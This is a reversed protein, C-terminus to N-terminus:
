DIPAEWTLRWTEPGVVGDVELGKEEQFARCVEESRPGYAGDVTIRWGREAMRAQWRRVDDGTMVPPQTIYRGPWPPASAPPTSPEPAPKSPAPQPPEQGLKRALAVASQPGYRGTVESVIDPHDAQLQRVAAETEDGFQGDVGYRPLKYGAKLLASQLDRVRDGEDGRSLVPEGAPVKGNWKYDDAGYAPRGYGAIVAASRIRRRVADGTNGEITQVRGDGLVKEIIGVHDIAGITNSEGWDFFVIDGPKARNLNAVTGSHWRGIKQFDQAHWVTYARDGGPLVAARNGSKRAWYTVAMDCWPASLFDNGHRAAYDRTIRNPRGALGIDARAAALMGAATGM